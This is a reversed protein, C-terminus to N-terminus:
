QYVSGSGASTTSSLHYQDSFWRMMKWVRSYRAPWARGPALEGEGAHGAGVVGGTAPLADDVPEVLLGGVAEALPVGVDVVGLVDLRQQQEGLEGLRVDGSARRRHEVQEEVVHGHVLPGAVDPTVWPREYMFSLLLAVSWSTKLTVFSAKSVVRSGYVERPSAM